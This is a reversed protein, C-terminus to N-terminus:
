NYGREFQLHEVARLDAKVDAKATEVRIDTQRLLLHKHENPEVRFEFKRESM